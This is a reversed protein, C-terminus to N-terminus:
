GTLEAIVGPRFIGPLRAAGGVVPSAHGNVSGAADDVDGGSGGGEIEVAGVADAVIEEGVGQDREVGGGAFADPVKLGHLVVHPVAVKGRRGHEYGDVALAFFNLGNR